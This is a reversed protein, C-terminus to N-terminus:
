RALNPSRRQTRQKGSRQAGHYPSDAHGSLATFLDNLREFQAQTKHREPIAVFYNAKGAVTIGQKVHAGDLQEESPGPDRPARSRADERM